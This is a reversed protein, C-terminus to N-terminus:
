DEDYFDELDFGDEFDESDIDENPYMMEMMEREDYGTIEYQLSKIRKLVKAALRKGEQAEEAQAMFKPDFAKNSDYLWAEYDFIPEAHEEAKEKLNNLVEAAEAYDKDCNEEIETLQAEIERLKEINNTISSM